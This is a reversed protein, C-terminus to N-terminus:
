AAHGAQKAVEKIKKLCAEELYRRAGALVVNLYKETPPYLKLSDRAKFTKAGVFRGDRLVINVSEITYAPGEKEKIKEFDEKSLLEFLVGCVEDGQARIINLAGGERGESYHNFILKYDM